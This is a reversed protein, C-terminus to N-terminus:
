YGEADAQLLGDRNGFLWRWLPDLVDLTEDIPREGMLVRVAVIARAGALVGLVFDRAEGTATGVDDRLEEIDEDFEESSQSNIELEAYVDNGFRLDASPQGDSSTSELSYRTSTGQLAADLTALDVDRGDSVIYRMYYSM